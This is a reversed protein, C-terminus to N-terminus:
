ETYAHIQMSVLLLLGAAISDENVGIGVGNYQKHCYATTTTGYLLSRNAQIRMRETGSDLVLFCHQRWITSGARNRHLHASDRRNSRWWQGNIRRWPVLLM